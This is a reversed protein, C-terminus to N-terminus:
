SSCHHPPLHHLSTEQNQVNSAGDFLVLDVVGWHDTRQNNPDKTQEIWSIIPKLLWAIYKADKEGGKAIESTWDVVVIDLLAFPNNPSYDLFIMMPVKLITAGNGFLAIGCVKSEELLSRMQEDYTSQYIDDLM